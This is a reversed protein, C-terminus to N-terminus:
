PTKLAQAIAERAAAALSQRTQAQGNADHKPLEALYVAQVSLGDARLVRWVNRLLSEEGVFAADDCRKGHRMFRLAVPQVAVAQSCAPAFLSAHFPLPEWGTSTTGEPFLGIAEGQEFCRCMALSVSRVAHRQDREIFLTGAGAVLGGLLPWRRIEHKAIFRTARVSNLVFVDIWSVHNAVTLVPKHLVASGRTDVRVGFCRMLLRSWRRVMAARTSRGIFPFILSVSLLGLCLCVLVCFLRAVFRPWVMMAAIAGGM